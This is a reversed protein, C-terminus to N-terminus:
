LNYIVALGTQSEALVIKSLCRNARNVVTARGRGRIIAAATKAMSLSPGDWPVQGWRVDGREYTANVPDSLIGTGGCLGHGGGGERKEDGVLLFPIRVQHSRKQGDAMCDLQDAGVDGTMDLATQGDVEGGAPVAARGFTWDRREAPLHQLFAVAGGVTDVDDALRQVVITMDGDELPVARQPSPSISVTDLAFGLRDPEHFVGRKRVRDSGIVRTPCGPAPYGCGLACAARHYTRLLASTVGGM